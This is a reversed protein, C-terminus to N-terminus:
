WMRLRDSLFTVFMGDLVFYKINNHNQQMNCIAATPETLYIISAFYSTTLHCNWECFFAVCVMSVAYCAPLKQTSLLRNTLENLAPSQLLLFRSPKVSV